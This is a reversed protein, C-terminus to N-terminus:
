TNGSALSTLQESFIEPHDYMDSTAVFVIGAGALAAMLCSLLKIRM